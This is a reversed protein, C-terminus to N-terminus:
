FNRPFYIYLYLTILRTKSYRFLSFYRFVLYFNEGEAKAKAAKMAALKKAKEDLVPEGAASSDASTPSPVATATVSTASGSTLSDASSGEDKKKLKNMWAPQPKDGGAPVPTPKLAATSGSEHKKLPAAGVKWAPVASEEDKKPSVEGEGEKPVPSRDKRIAWAPVSKEPEVKAAVPDVPTGTPDETKPKLKRMALANAMESNVGTGFGVKAPKFVAPDDASVAQTVIGKSPLPQGMPFGGMPVAGPPLKRKVDEAAPPEGEPPKPGRGVPVPPPGDPLPPKPVPLEDDDDDRPPLTPPGAPAPPLGNTADDEDEIIVCFHPPSNLIPFLHQSSYVALFFL